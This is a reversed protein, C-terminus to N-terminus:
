NLTNICEILDKHYRPDFKKNNFNNVNLLRREATDQYIKHLDQQVLSDILAHIKDIRTECDLESDYYKHDIVDDFVDVGQDRLYAISNPNGLVLFLQGAAVPKWIKESAFVRPSTTTETALNIYSDVYASNNITSDLAFLESTGLQDRSPLINRISEWAQTVSASLVLDDNRWALGGPNINHFTFLCDNYYSKQKFKLYNLIRHSRPNANLCSIKYKRPSILDMNNASIFNEMSWYYYHPYFFVRPSTLHDLYHHSLIIYNLKTDKLLENYQSVSNGWHEISLDIIVLQYQKLQNIVGPDVMLGTQGALIAPNEIYHIDKNNLFELM